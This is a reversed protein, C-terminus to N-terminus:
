LRVPGSDASKSWKARTKESASPRVIRYRSAGVESRFSFKPRRAQRLMDDVLECHHGFEVLLPAIVPHALVVEFSVRSAGVLGFVRLSSGRSPRRREFLREPSREVM